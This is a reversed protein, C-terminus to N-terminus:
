GTRSSRTTSPSPDAKAPAAKAPGSAGSAVSPMRRSSIARARLGSTATTRIAASASSAALADSGVNTESCWATVDPDALPLVPTLLALLLILGLVAAGIAALRNRFLLRLFAIM